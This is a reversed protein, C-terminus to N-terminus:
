EHTQWGPLLLSSPQAEGKMANWVRKRELVTALNREKMREEENCYHPSEEGKSLYGQAEYVRKPSTQSEGAHNAM